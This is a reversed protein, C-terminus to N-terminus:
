VRYKTEYYGRDRLYKFFEKFAISRQSITNIDPVDMKSYTEERGKPIFIAHWEFEQKDDPKEAIIGEMSGEFSKICKGDCYGIITRAEASRPEDSLMSCIKEPGIKEWFLQTLGGPMGEWADIFLGSHEVFVPRGVLQFAELVKQKVIEKMDNSQIEKIKKNVREFPMGEQNFLFLIEKCKYNNKSVFILPYENM